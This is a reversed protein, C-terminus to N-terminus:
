QIYYRKRNKNKDVNNSELNQKSHDAKLTGADSFSSKSLPRNSTNTKSRDVKLTDANAFDYQEDKETADSEYGDAKMSKLVSGLEVTKSTELIECKLPEITELIDGPQFAVHEITGIVIPPLEKEHIKDVHEQKLIELKELDIKESGTGTYPITLYDSVTFVSVQDISKDCDSSPEKVSASTLSSFSQKHQLEVSYNMVTNDSTIGSSENNQDTNMVGSDPDTVLSKQRSHYHPSTPRSDYFEASDPLGDSITNQTDTTGKRNHLAESNVHHEKSGHQKVSVAALTENTDIRHHNLTAESMLKEQFSSVDKDRLLVVSHLLKIRESLTDVGIDRLDGLSMGMLQKGTIQNTIFLQKFQSFEVLDLWNGVEIPSWTELPKVNKINVIIGNLEQKSSDRPEEQPEL